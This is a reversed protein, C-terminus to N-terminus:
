NEFQSSKAKLHVSERPLLLHVSTGSNDQGNDSEIIIEGGHKQIIQRSIWLGIGNGAIGKTTFFPEFIRQLHEPPIGCGTDKVTLRVGDLRASEERSVALSITGGGPMADIANAVLNSIVQVLEGPNNIVRQQTDYKFQVRIGANKLRSEYTRIVEELIEDLRVEVPSAADRYYGLTRRAIQAARRLEQEANHLYLLAEDNGTCANQALFVLNTVAELPNNLEHAVTAAMRGVAALKESQILLRQMSRRESTDHAIKSAGIIQGYSNCVPSITVSLQLRDGSKPMRITEFHEIKEGARIKGLIMDEEDQLEPPIIKRISQGIMEKASYGFLREAAPNWSTVISNLDKSVIADDASSVIAALVGRAEEAERRATIDTAVGFWEEVSGDAALIPIAM